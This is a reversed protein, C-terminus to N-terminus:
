RNNNYRKRSNFTLEEIYLSITDIRAYDDFLAFWATLISSEFYIRQFILIRGDSDEQNQIRFVARGGDVGAQEPM